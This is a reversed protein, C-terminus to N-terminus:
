VPCQQSFYYRSRIKMPNQQFHAKSTLQHSLNWFPSNISNQRTKCHADHVFDYFIVNPRNGISFFCLMSIKNIEIFDYKM